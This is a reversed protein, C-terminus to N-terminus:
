KNSIHINEVKANIVVNSVELAELYGNCKIILNDILQLCQKSHINLEENLDRLVGVIKQEDYERGKFKYM